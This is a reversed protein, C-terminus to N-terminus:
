FFNEMMMLLVMADDDHNDDFGMVSLGFDLCFYSHLFGLKKEKRDRVWKVWCCCCCSTFVGCGAIFFEL